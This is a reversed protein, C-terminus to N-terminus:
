AMLLFTHTYCLFLFSLYGAFPQGARGVGGRVSAAAVAGGGGGARASAPPAHPSHLQQDLTPPALRLLTALQEDVSHRWEDLRRVETWLTDLAKLTTSRLSSDRSALEM